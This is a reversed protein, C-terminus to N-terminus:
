FTLPLKEVSYVWQRRELNLIAPGLAATSCHSALRQDAPTM